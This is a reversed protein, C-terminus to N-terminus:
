VELQVAVGGDMLAAPEQEAHEAQREHHDHHRHRRQVDGQRAHLAVEVGARRRQLPDDVGVGDHEGAQQEGGTREAVAEPAFAGQEDAEAHEGGSRQQAAHGARGPQDDGAAPMWPAPAANTIGAVSESM